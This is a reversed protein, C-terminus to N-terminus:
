QQDSGAIVHEQHQPLDDTITF